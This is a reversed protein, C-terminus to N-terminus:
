VTHIQNFFARGVRHAFLKHVFQAPYMADQAVVQPSYPTNNIADITAGGSFLYLRFYVLERGGTRYPGQAYIAQAIATKDVCMVLALIRVEKGSQAPRIGIQTRHDILELRIM